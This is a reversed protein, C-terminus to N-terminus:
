MCVCFVSILLLSVSCSLIMSFTLSLSGSLSRSISISLSICLSLPLSLLRTESAMGGMEVGTSHPVSISSPGRFGSSQWRAGRLQCWWM